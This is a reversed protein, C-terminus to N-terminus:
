SSFMPAIATLAAHHLHSGLAARRAHYEALFGFFLSQGHKLDASNWSQLKVGDAAVLLNGGHHVDLGYCVKILAVYAGQQILWERRVRGQGARHTKWDVLTLRGDIEALLDPTGVYFAGRHILPLEVIFVRGIRHFFQEMFCGFMALAETDEDSVGAVGSNHITDYLIQHEALLHFTTGIQARTKRVHECHAEAEAPTMGDRTILSQRWASPNFTKADTAAMVQSVSDLRVLGHRRSEYWYVHDQEAFSLGPIPPLLELTPM